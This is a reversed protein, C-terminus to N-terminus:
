GCASATKSVALLRASLQRAAYGMAQDEIPTFGASDLGAEEVGTAVEFSADAGTGVPVLAGTRALKWMEARVCGADARGRDDVMTRLASRWGGVGQPSAWLQEVLVEAAWAHRPISRRPLRSICLTLLAGQPSLSEM